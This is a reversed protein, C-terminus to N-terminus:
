GSNTTLKVPSGEKVEKITTQEYIQVDMEKLQEIMGALFAVPQFEYQERMMVSSEIPIDVPLEDKLNGDIKLQDYAEAEKQLDENKEKDQTHDYAEQKQVQCYSNHKTAIDKIINIGQMHAQYYLHDHERGSRNILEDYILNHQATLKATTFGTTGYLLERAEFLTVSKSTKTLEYATMIGAIGGGVVAVDVNLNQDLKPFDQVEATQHWFSQTKNPLKINSMILGGKIKKCIYMGCKDN